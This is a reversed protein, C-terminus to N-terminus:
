LQQHKTAKAKRGMRNEREEVSRLWSECHRRGRIGIGRGSTVGAIGGELFLDMTELYTEM